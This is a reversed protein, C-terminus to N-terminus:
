AIGAREFHKKLVARGLLGGLIGGIFCAVLIPIFSWEPIVRMLNDAYEQGYHTAIMEFYSDRSLFFLTYFGFSGAGFVGSTLISKKVSSYDGSKLVSECLVGAVIFIPLSLIGHGTLLAFLGLLLAMISVMGIKKVRTLFLTFPIGAIMPTVVIIVPYLIPIMALPISVAMYVVIYIASFIGVNILDKAQLKNSM